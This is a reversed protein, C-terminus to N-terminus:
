RADTRAARLREVLWPQFSPEISVNLPVPVIPPRGETSTRSHSGLRAFDKETTLIVAAGSSEAARVVAEVEPVSYHHHDGFARRGTLAWGATELDSFFREPRAIGAFAFAPRDPPPGALRRQFTFSPKPVEIGVPVESRVPEEILLADAAAAADLPERFRGFPLTRPDDTPHPAVLLDVDRLLDFHQFGDDLIHVTCGLRSEAIRGALFRSSSVLVAADPLARALMQPEDGSREVPELVNKGDSVIVVGEDFAKRAYGRSLIAPREGIAILMRAIEAALPTKSNGGVTLNGISIVPAALRRRLYPRHQYYQRRARALRSYLLDLL